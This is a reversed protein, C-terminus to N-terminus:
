QVVFKKSTVTNGNKISVFYIGRHLMPLEIDVKDGTTLLRRVMAGSMNTVSVESIGEFNTLEVFFKGNNPNPFIKVQKNSGIKNKEKGPQEAIITSKEVPANAVAPAPLSSCYDATTTIYAHMLSGEQAHFGEKFNISEGAIFNSESGSQLVVSYTPGAVTINELANWCDTQGDGLTVHAVLTNYGVSTEATISVDDIAWYWAYTGTYNWKFLVQSYGAVQATVDQSFLAPNTASTATWQQLQSWNAGNDISYSLTASSPAYYQFFHKFGLVIDTYNKFNFVPSILDANQSNGNGYNDSNLFAYNGTLTPNPAQTETFTGFEWIQGNGAHDVQSWCAPQVNLDFGESYPFSSIVGCFTNEFQYIGSSYENGAAVSVLKYYYNTGSQLNIHSYSTATGNSLVTGGGPISSGVAYTTGNVLTGFTSTTNFLLMTNDNNTNKFWNLDIESNSVATATLNNPNEITTITATFSITSGASTVNSILLGGASGDQLFCNPNTGDNISTRGSESSFFATSPSGNTSTTGNPRYVYVEDPPGDANGTVSTNIRYVLLGSGPVNNEFTGETKKRYELVFYQSLSNPSAIKYCNNTSSSLPNLSYTGSTTIEPITTIWSEDAYKWKMYAGMHGFGSEMLDWSAVPQLGDYSYHYLDPAGLAHFMEHCLTQVDVQSEPQFTYDYVRKGNINVTYSYLMWRHAWLLSSWAGNNGKIIFCVNDVFGDSDGDINLGASVPSNSNIWNIADRLLTHERTTRMAGNDGGTYGITNTAANYPQFYGRAHTDQYSYNTTLACAPYHTSSINLHTYSVENYYSNLTTGTTPNLKDDYTQRTTTFETDDSFRIYVVINNLTGTHPAPSLTSDPAAFSRKIANYKEVSIKAWKTLGVAAPKVKNVKYTTPVVDNNKTKAYYYYGDEAQIITYGEKDHIWNFYEDGSVFCNIIEGNPQTITYPLNSYYNALLQITALILLCAVLIKKM